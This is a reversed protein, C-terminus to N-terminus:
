KVKKLLLNDFRYTGKGGGLRFTLFRIREGIISFKKEVKIWSGIKRTRKKELGWDIINKHADFAAIFFGGPSTEDELYMEGEFHYRDGKHVAIYKRFPYSWRKKGNCTIMLCYSDKGIGGKIRKKYTGQYNELLTKDSWHSFLKFHNFDTQFIIGPQDRIIVDDNLYNFPFRRSISM